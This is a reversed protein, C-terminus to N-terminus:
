DGVGNASVTMALTDTADGGHASRAKTENRRMRRQGPGRPRHPRANRKLPRAAQPVIPRRPPNRDGAQPGIPTATMAGRLRGAEWRPMRTQPPETMDYRTNLRAACVM